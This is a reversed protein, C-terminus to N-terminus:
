ATIYSSKKNIDTSNSCEGSSGAYRNTSPAETKM